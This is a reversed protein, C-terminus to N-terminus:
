AFGKARHVWFGAGPDSGTDAAVQRALADADTLGEDLFLTALGQFFTAFDRAVVRREANPADRLRAFVRGNSTDLLILYGDSAGILLLERPRGSPGWTAKPDIMQRLLFTSFDSEDGFVVGGLELGGLDYTSAIRCFEDPLPGGLATEIEGIQRRDLSSPRLEMGAFFDPDPEPLEQHMRRIKEDIRAPISEITVLMIAKRGKSSRIDM